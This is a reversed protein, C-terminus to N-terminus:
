CIHRGRKKRARRQGYQSDNIYGPTMKMRANETINARQALKKITKLAM